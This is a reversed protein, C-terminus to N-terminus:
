RAYTWAFVLLITIALTLLPLLSPHHKQDGHIM